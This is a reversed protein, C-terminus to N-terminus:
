ITIIIKEIITLQPKKLKEIIVQLKQTDLNVTLKVKTTENPKTKIRRTDIIRGNPLIILQFTKNPTTIETHDIIKDTTTSWLFLINTEDTTIKTKVIEYNNFFNNKNKILKIKIVHPHKEAYLGQRFMQGLGKKNENTIDIDETTHNLEM